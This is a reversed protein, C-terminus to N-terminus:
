GQADTKEKGRLDMVIGRRLLYDAVAPTAYGAIQGDPTTITVSTGACIHRGETDILYLNM